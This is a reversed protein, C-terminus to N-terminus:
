AAAASLASRVTAVAERPRFWVQDDTIRVVRYGADALAADRRRDAERDLKTTHYVASDVEILLRAEPYAFDVRGVWRDGGVNHQRVPDPLGSARLLALFRAELGSEPAVYAAGREALLTRMVTSGARGRKALEGTVRRVAAITTFRRALANDLARELRGAHIVGAMDFLTRAVTTVPVGSTTTIHLAPLSRPAHLVGLGTARHTGGQRARSLHVQEDVFGPLRWLRAASHHSVVVQPGADFAAAICRQEFTAVSGQLRLM